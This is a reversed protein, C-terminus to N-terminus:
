CILEWEPLELRFSIDHNERVTEAVSLKLQPDLEYFLFIPGNFRRFSEGQKSFLPPLRIPFSKYNSIFQRSTRMRPYLHLTAM